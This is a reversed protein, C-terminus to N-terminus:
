DIVKIFYLLQEKVAGAETPATEKQVWLDLGVNQQQLIAERAVASPKEVYL